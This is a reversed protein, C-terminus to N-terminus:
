PTPIASLVASATAPTVAQPGGLITVLDVHNPLTLGAEATFLAPIGTGLTNPNLTLVIPAHNVGGVVSGALADAYFDGRAVNIAYTNPTVGLVAWGLGTPQGSANITASLEFQALLQATTTYDSGAIRLVSVGLTALQTVVADSIAVPGGMVVVQKIGLNSIASSVQPALSAQQTLLIPWKKAYSMASAAMADPFTQGTALIATSTAVSSAPAVTGSSGTTTNYASTGTPSAPYGGGFAGTGVGSAGFFQAVTEATDYQTQGFVQTVVLNVPGSANTIGTTGGCNFAQTGQLQTVVNSSVALPGGVIYVHTIGELRLAVSTVSSLAGTPTLLVGTGLRAALYSASLADPFNQDTALVVNGSSPCTSATPPFVSTLEAAATGDADQGFIRSTNFVSFGSIAYSYVATATGSACNAVSSATYVTLNQAGFPVAVPNVVRLGAAEFVGATTSATTVQFAVGSTDFAGIASPPGFGSLAGANAVVAGSGANTQAFGVPTFMSNTLFYNGANLEICVFAGAPIAAKATETFIVPSIATTVSTDIATNPQVLVPPTNASVGVATVVANPSPSVSQTTGGAAAPVYSGAVGVNGPAAGSGINYTIGSITIAWTWNALGAPNPANGVTLVLKDNIGPCLLFELPNSTQQAVTATIAPPTDQGPGVPTVTVTPASAYGVSNATSQCATAGPPGVNLVLTDGKAFGNSFTFGWNTAAQSSGGVM